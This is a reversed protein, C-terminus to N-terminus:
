TRENYDIDERITLEIGEVLIIWMPESLSINKLYQRRFVVELLHYLDLDMLNM